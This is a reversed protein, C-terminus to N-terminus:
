IVLFRRIGIIIIGKIKKILVSISEGLLIYSGKCYQNNRFYYSSTFKKWTASWLHVAVSEQTLFDKYRNLETRKAYPLPYFYEKPFVRIGNKDSVGNLQRNYFYNSFLVKTMIVPITMKMLHSERRLIILDDYSRLCDQLFPENKKSAIFAANIYEEDEAGININNSLLHDFCKLVLMDTDLYIGGYKNLIDLRAYDSAFAWLKNELAKKYFPHESKYSDENWEIIRYGKFCAGWSSICQKVLKPKSKKGFWCYHILKPIENHLM